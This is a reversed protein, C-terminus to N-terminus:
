RSASGILAGIEGRGARGIPRHADRSAVVFRNPEAALAAVARHHHRRARVHELARVVDIWGSRRTLALGRAPERGPPDPRLLLPKGCRRESRHRTRLEDQRAM